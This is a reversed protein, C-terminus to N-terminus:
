NDGLAISVTIDVEDTINVGDVNAFPNTSGNNLYLRNKAGNSLYNAGLVDLDGDGDVDGLTISRTGHEEDTISVGNVNAFPNESGNNLYLRNTGPQEYGESNSAIVDLDGDGDVDGLAISLTPHIDDTINIGSIGAFPNATGNNLYVRNTEFFVGFESGHLSNGAVVDLDGDGDVDGLAISETNDQDTTINMGTLM